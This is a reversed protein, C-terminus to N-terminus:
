DTGHTGDRRGSGRPVVHRFMVIGRQVDELLRLAVRRETVAACVGHEHAVAVEAHPQLAGVVRRGGRDESAQQPEVERAAVDATV